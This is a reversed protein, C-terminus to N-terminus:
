ALSVWRENDHHVAEDEWKSPSVAGHATMRKMINREVRRRAHYVSGLYRSQELLRLRELVFQAQDHTDLNSKGLIFLPWLSAGSNVPLQQIGDVIANRLNHALAPPNNARPAMVRDHLYLMASLRKVEAIQVMIDINGGGDGLTQHLTSLQKMLNAATAGISHDSPHSQQRVTSALCSIRGILSILERSCGM